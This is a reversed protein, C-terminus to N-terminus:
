ARGGAAAYGCLPGEGQVPPHDDAHLGPRHRLRDRGAVALFGAAPPLHLADGADGPPRRGAIGMATLFFIKGGSRKLSSWKFYRGTGFAIFALAIDTVFSMSNVMPADVLKLCYPGIFIGALIYGTVNPLHMLKTLRSFAFAALLTTGLCLIVRATDNLQLALTPM